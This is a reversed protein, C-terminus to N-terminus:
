KWKVMAAMRNDSKEKTYIDILLPKIVHSKIPQHNHQWGILLWTQANMNGLLSISMDIGAEIKNSLTSICVLGAYYQIIRKWNKFLLKLVTFIKPICMCSWLECIYVMHQSTSLIYCKQVRNAKNQDDKNSKSWNIFWIGDLLTVVM